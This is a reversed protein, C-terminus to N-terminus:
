DRIAHHRWCLLTSICRRLIYFRTRQQKIMKMWKKGYELWLVISSRSLSSSSSSSEKRSNNRRSNKYISRMSDLIIVIF